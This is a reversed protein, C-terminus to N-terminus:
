QFNDIALFGFVVLEKKTELVVLSFNQSMKNKHREKVLL